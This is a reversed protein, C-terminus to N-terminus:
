QDTHYHQLDQNDLIWAAFHHIKILDPPNKCGGECCHACYMAGDLGHDQNWDGIPCTHYERMARVIQSPEMKWLGSLHELASLPLTFYRTEVKRWFKYSVGLADAVERRSQGRELRITQLAQNYDFLPLGAELIERATLDASLDNM